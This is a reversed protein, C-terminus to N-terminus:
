LICILDVGKIGGYSVFSQAVSGWSYRAFFVLNVCLLINNINLLLYSNMHPHENCIRSYNPNKGRKRWGNEEFAAM